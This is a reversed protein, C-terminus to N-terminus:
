GNPRLTVYGGYPGLSTIAGTVADVVVAEIGGPVGPTTDSSAGILAGDPSWRPLSLRPEEGVDTITRRGTGDPQIEFLDWPSVRPDPSAYQQAEVSFVLAGTAWSWDAAYAYEEFPLMPTLTGGGASPVIGFSSGTENGTDDFRDISVVLSGGDPSWRPIDVLQGPESEVVVTRQETGLDLAVIRSAAPQPAADPADYEVYAVQKGDPSWAANSLDWCDCTILAAANEGDPDVVWVESGRVVAGQEDWEGEAIFAVQSGDSTWTPHKHRTGPAAEDVRQVAKGDVSTYVGTGDEGTQYVVGTQYVFDLGAASTATGEPETGSSTNTTPPTTPDIPPTTAAVTSASESSV